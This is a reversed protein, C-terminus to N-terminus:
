DSLPPLRYIENSQLLPAVYRTLDRDSFYKTSADYQDQRYLTPKPVEPPDLTSHISKASKSNLVSHKRNTSSPSSQLQKTQVQVPARSPKAIKEYEKKGKLPSIAVITSKTTEQAVTHRTSILQRNM